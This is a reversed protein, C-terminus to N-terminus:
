FSIVIKEKLAAVLYITMFNGVYLKNESIIKLWNQYNYIVLLINWENTSLLIYFLKYHMFLCVIRRFSYVLLLARKDDNGKKKLDTYVVSM